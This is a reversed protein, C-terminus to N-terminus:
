RPSTRNLKKNRGPQSANVSATQTNAPAHKVSSAGQCNPRSSSRRACFSATVDETRVSGTGSAPRSSLDLASSSHRRTVSM